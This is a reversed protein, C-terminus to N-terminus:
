SSATYIRRIELGKAKASVLIVGRAEAVKIATTTNQNFFLEEIAMEDPKFEDIIENMSDYIDVLRQNFESNPKTKIAGATVLKFKNGIYDLVSFGVIGYGPDIGLIRM